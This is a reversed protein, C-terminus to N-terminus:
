PMADIAADIQAPHIASSLLKAVVAPKYCAHYRWRRYREADLAVDSPVAEAQQPAALTRGAAEVLKHLHDPPILEGEKVTYGLQCLEEIAHLKLADARAIKEQLRRNADLLEAERREADHRGSKDDCAECYLPENSEASRLLLSMPHGCAQVAEAREGPRFGNCDDDFGYAVPPETLRANPGRPDCLDVVSPPGRGDSEAQPQHNAPTARKRWPRDAWWVALQFVAGTKRPDGFMREGEEKWRTVADLHDELERNQLVLAPFIRDFAQLEREWYATDEEGKAQTKAIELARRWAYHHAQGDLQTPTTQQKM